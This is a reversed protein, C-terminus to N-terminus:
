LIQEALVNAQPLMPPAETDGKLWMHLSEWKWAKSFYKKEPHLLGILALILLRIRAERRSTESLASIDNLWNLPSMPLMDM